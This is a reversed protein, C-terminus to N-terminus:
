SSAGTSSSSPPRPAPIRPARRLRRVEHRARRVPAPRPPRPATVEHWAVAAMARMPRDHDIHRMVQTTLYVTAVLGYLAPLIGLTGTWIEGLIVTGFLAGGVWYARYRVRFPLPRGRPGLYVDDVRYLEDDTHMDM